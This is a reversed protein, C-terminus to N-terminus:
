KQLKLSVIQCTMKSLDLDISSELSELFFMSVSDKRLGLPVTLLTQGM